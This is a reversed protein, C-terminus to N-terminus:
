QGDNLACSSASVTIGVLIGLNAPVTARVCVLDGHRSEVLTAAPSVERVTRGADADGRGMLRAAGAVAAQLRLQEGALQVSGLAVVLVLIVAPFVAAFEATVSGREARIRFRM